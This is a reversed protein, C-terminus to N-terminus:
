TEEDSDGTVVIKGDFEEACTLLPIEELLCEAELQGNLMGGFLLWGAVGDGDDGGITLGSSPHLGEIKELPSPMGTRIVHSAGTTLPTDQNMGDIVVPNAASIRPTCILGYLGRTRFRSRSTISSDAHFGKQRQSIWRSFPCPSEGVTTTGPKTGSAM